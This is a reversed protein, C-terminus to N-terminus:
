ILLLYIIWFSGKERMKQKYKRQEEDKDRKGGDDAWRRGKVTLQILSFIKWRKKLTFNHFKYEEHNKKM